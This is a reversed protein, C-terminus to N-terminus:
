GREAPFTALAYFMWSLVSFTILLAVTEKVYRRRRERLVLNMLLRSPIGILYLTAVFAWIMSFVVASAIEFAGMPPPRFSGSWMVCVFIGIWFVAGFGYNAARWRQELSNNEMPKFGVIIQRRPCERQM